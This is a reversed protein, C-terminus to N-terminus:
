GTTDLVIFQWALGPKASAQAAVTGVLAVYRHVAPDQVVGYRTRIRASVIAGIEREQEPRHQPREDPDGRAPGPRARSSPSPPNATLFLLSVLAARRM